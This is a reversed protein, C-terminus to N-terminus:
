WTSRISYAGDVDNMVGTMVLLRIFSNVFRLLSNMYVVFGVLIRNYALYLNDPFSDNVIEKVSRQYGEILDQHRVYFKKLSRLDSPKIAKHCCDM